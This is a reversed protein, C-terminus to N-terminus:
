FFGVCLTGKAYEKIHTLFIEVVSKQTDQYEDILVYDFKDCLIKSLLPYQAFMMNAVKLLDDHTIIGNELARYNQYEISIFSNEDIEVEGSYTLGSGKTEKELAILDLVVQKLNKQFGKIM